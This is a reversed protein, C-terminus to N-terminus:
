EKVFKWSGNGKDLSGAVQVNNGAAHMYIQNRNNHEGWKNRVQYYHNGTRVCDSCHANSGNAGNPGPHGREGKLSAKNADFYNQIQNPIIANLQDQLSTMDWMEINGSADIVTIKKNSPLIISTQGSLSSSKSSVNITSSIQSARSSSIVPRNYRCRCECYIILLVVIILLSTKEM